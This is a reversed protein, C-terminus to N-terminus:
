RRQRRQELYLYAGNAGPARQNEGGPTDLSQTQVLSGGTGRAKQKDSDCLKPHGQLVLGGIEELASVNDHSLRVFTMNGHM